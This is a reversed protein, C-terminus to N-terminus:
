ARSGAQHKGFHQERAIEAGPLRREKGDAQSGGYVFSRSRPLIILGARGCPEPFGVPSYAGRRPPRNLAHPSTGPCSLPTNPADSTTPAGSNSRQGSVSWAIGIRRGRPLGGFRHSFRLSDAQGLGPISRSKFKQVVQMAATDVGQAQAHHIVWGIRFVQHLFSKQL